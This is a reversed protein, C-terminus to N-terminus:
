AGARYVADAFSVPRVRSRDIEVAISRQLLDVTLVLRDIGSSRVLIGEIGAMPGFEIKVRNGARLYPWPQVSAGSSVATRIIEIESEGVPEPVGGAGTIAVVGPTRLVPVRRVVDLRCFVYGPFLPAEVKKIRDSYRRFDLYAPVFVEYGKRELLLKTRFEVTTRVQLAYWPHRRDLDPSGLLEPAEIVAM